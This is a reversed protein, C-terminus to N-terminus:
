SCPAAACCPPMWDRVSRAGRPSSVASSTSASSRGGPQPVTGVAATQTSCVWLRPPPATCGSATSCSSRASTSPWPTASCQSPARMQFAEDGGAVRQRVVARSNSVSDTQRRLPRPAGTPETTTVAAAGAGLAGPHQALPEAAAHALRADEGRGPEVGEVVVDVPEGLVVAARGPEARREADLGSVLM